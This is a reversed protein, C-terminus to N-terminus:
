RCRNVVAGVDVGVPLEPPLLLPVADPRVVAVLDPDLVEELGEVTEELAALISETGRTPAIPAINTPM